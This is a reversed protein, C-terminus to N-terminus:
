QDDGPGHLTADAMRAVQVMQEVDHVRIIDAGNAIAVANLAATGWLREQPDPIDLVRGITSKRSVGLLVPRRMSRFEELRRVIELNHSVTKGFGFGPDIIIQTEDIGGAVAAEVRGALFDYIDTIVNEYSPEDQMSQPDGLMHMICVAVRTEAAM